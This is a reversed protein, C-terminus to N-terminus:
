VSAVTCLLHEFVNRNLFIDGRFVKFVVALHLPVYEKKRFNESVVCLKNHIALTYSNHVVEM